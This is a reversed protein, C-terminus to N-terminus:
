AVSPHRPVFFAFPPHWPVFFAVPPQRPVFFAVPAHSVGNSAPQTIGNGNTGPKPQSQESQWIWEQDKYFHRHTLDGTPGMANSIQTLAGAMVVLSILKKM